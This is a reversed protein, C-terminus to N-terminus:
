CHCCTPTPCTLGGFDQVCQFSDASGFEQFNGEEKLDCVEGPVVGDFSNEYFVFIELNKLNGFETPMTGTFENRYLKLSRLMTLKGLESPLTGTLKNGELTLGQELNELNGLETPLTGNLMNNELALDRLIPLSGIATPITGVINTKPLRLGQLNPLSLLQTPFPGPVFNTNELDFAAWQTGAFLPPFTMPAFNNSGMELYNMQTSDAFAQFPFTGDLNNGGILLQDLSAFEPSVTGTLLNKRLECVAFYPLHRLWTSPLTGALNNESLYLHTVADPIAPYSCGVQVWDCPNADSIWNANKSWDAGGTAFYLASLGFRTPMAEDPTESTTQLAMSLLALNDPECSQPNPVSDLKLVNPVVNQLLEDYRDQLCSPVEVTSFLDSSRCAELINAMSCGEEVEITPDPTPAPSLNMEIIEEGEDKDSSSGGSFAVGLGAGLGIALLLVVGGGIWYMRRRSIKKIEDDDGGMEPPGAVEFAGSPVTMFTDDAISDGADGNSAMPMEGSQQPSSSINTPQEEDTRLPASSLPATGDRNSAPASPDGSTSGAMYAGPQRQGAEPQVKVLRHNPQLLASTDQPVVNPQNRRLPIMAPVASAVALSRGSQGEQSNAEPKLFSQRDSHASQRLAAKNSQLSLETTSPSVSTISNHHKLNGFRSSGKQLSNSSGQTSQQLAANDNELSLDSSSMKKQPNRSYLGEDPYRSIADILDAASDSLASVDDAFSSPNADATSSAESGRLPQNPQSASLTNYDIAGSSRQSVREGRNLRNAIEQKESMVRFPAANPRPQKDEDNDDSQNHNSNSSM